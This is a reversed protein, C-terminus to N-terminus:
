GSSGFELFSDLLLTSLSLCLAQFFSLFHELFHLGFEVFDGLSAIHIAFIGHDLHVIQFLLKFFTAALKTGSLLHLARQRLHLAQFCARAILNCLRNLFPVERFCLVHHFVKRILHTLPLETLLFFLLQFVLDLLHLLGQFIRDFFM